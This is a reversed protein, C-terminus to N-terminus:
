LRIHLAGKYKIEGSIKKDIFLWPKCEETIVKPM